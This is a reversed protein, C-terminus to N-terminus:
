NSSSSLQLQCGVPCCEKWMAVALSFATVVGAIVWVYAPVSSEAWWQVTIDM